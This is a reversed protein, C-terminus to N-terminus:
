QTVFETFYVDMVDHHYAEEVEHVLEDQLAQRTATDTLEALPRGTFTDILLNLAQSGEPAHAADATAQLAIGVRLYHGDALNISIAELAIVDGPEPEPEAAEGGAPGLLFWYAAGGVLLLVLVVAILLKKKSKRPPAADGGDSAAPTGPRTATATSM